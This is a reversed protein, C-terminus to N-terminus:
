IRSKGMKIHKLSARCIAERGRKPQKRRRFRFISNASPKSNHFNILNLFRDTIESRGMEKHDRELTARKPRTKGMREPQALGGAACHPWDM